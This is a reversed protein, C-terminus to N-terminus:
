REIGRTQKSRSGDHHTRHWNRAPEITSRIDTYQPQWGLETIVKTPVAHLEPPHGEWGRSPLGSEPKARVHVNKSMDLARASVGLFVILLIAPPRPTARSGFANRVNYREGRCWGISTSAM